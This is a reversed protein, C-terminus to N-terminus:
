WVLSNKLRRLKCAKTSRRQLRFASEQLDTVCCLLDLAYLTTVILYTKFRWVCIFITWSIYVLQFLYTYMTIYLMINKIRMCMIIVAIETKIWLSLIYIHSTQCDHKRLIGQSQKTKGAKLNLKIRALPTICLNARLQIKKKRRETASLVKLCTLTHLDYPWEWENM